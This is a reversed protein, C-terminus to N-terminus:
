RQFINELETYPIVSISSCFTPKYHKELNRSLFDFAIVDSLSTKCFTLLIKKEEVDNINFKKQMEMFILLSDSIKLRVGEKVKKEARRQIEGAELYDSLEYHFDSIEIFYLSSNSKKLYDCSKLLSCGISLKLNDLDIAKISLEVSGLVDCETNIKKFFELVTM